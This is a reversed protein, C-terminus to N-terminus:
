TAARQCQKAAWAKMAAQARASPCFTRGHTLRSGSRGILLQFGQPLTQGLGHVAGARLMLAQEQGFEGQEGGAGQGVGAAHLLEDRRGPIGPM